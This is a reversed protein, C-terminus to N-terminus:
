NRQIGSLEVRPDHPSCLGTSYPLGATCLVYQGRRLLFLEAQWGTAKASNTMLSKHQLVRPM